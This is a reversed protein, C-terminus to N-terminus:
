LMCCRDHEMVIVCGQSIVQEWYQGSKATKLPTGPPGKPLDNEFYTTKPKAKGNSVSVPEIQGVAKPTPKVITAITGQISELAKAPFLGLKKRGSANLCTPLMNGLERLPTREM